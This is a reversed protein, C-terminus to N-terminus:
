GGVVEEGEGGGGWWEGARVTCSLLGDCPACVLAETSHSVTQMGNLTPFWYMYNVM